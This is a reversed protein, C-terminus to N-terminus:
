WGARPLVPAGILRPPRPVCRPVCRPLAARCRLVRRRPAACVRDGSFYLGYAHPAEPPEECHPAVDDEPLEKLNVMKVAVDPQMGDIRVGLRGRDEHYETVVGKRGNLVAKAVLGVLEARRGVMEHPTTALPRSPPGEDLSPLEVTIEQGPGSGEPVAISYSVGGWEVSMEMGAYTGDPIVLTVPTMGPTAPAEVPAAAEELAPLEVIIEQGPGSGEPVAISYSVGGWEVSMEDGAYTGLPIQLTVPETAM